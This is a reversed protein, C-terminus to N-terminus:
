QQCQGHGHRYDATVLAMIIVLVEDHNVAQQSFLRVACQGQQFCKVAIREARLGITGIIGQQQGLGTVLAIDDGGVVAHDVDCQVIVLFM